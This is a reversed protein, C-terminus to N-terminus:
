YIGIITTATTNVPLVRTPMFPLVGTYNPYICVVGNIDEIEIDGGSVIISRYNEPLIDTSPTIYAHKNGPSTDITGTM